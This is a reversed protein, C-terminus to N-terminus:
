GLRDKKMCSIMRDYMEALSASARWGLAKLRTTDLDMYLTNAYGLTKTDALEHSVQIKGASAVTEAMEAISCYSEENAANYATGPEGKTLVTFVASAADATYLYCRETEGKTKLVIDKQEIVSRAFEAFVRGDNYQVGPGMTQTLRLISVPVKYESAYACCLNECLQKSLPYCNRVTLPSLAGIENETVRHNKEPYGYVEMTSLFVMGKVQKDKALSLVNRTGSYVTDITEVPTEVFGKSSTQSAAHIIYDVDQMIAISETVDGDAFILKEPFAERQKAFMREAKERNRVLAIVVPANGSFQNRYLLANVITQGILGTAGTMFVTKGDLVSFCEACSRCINELDEKLIQNDLWM